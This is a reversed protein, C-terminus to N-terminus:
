TPAEGRDFLKNWSFNVSTTDFYAEPEGQFPDALYRVTAAKGNEVSVLALIFDKGKNLGTLIETRTVTVTPAGAVRGKVEIFRLAGSVPDKSLIDYGPNYHDQEAPEYGLDREIAMVADVAIREIVTTDIATSGPAPPRITALYGAPVVLAGGVVVPQQASIQREQEIEALRRELRDALDEARQRAKGSNLTLPVEVLTVTTFVTGDPRQTSVETYRHRKKGALEQEKLEEARHDWYNIEKMLRDRVATEVLDLRGLTRTRVEALHAPVAQEIAYDMGKAELGSGLWEEALLPQILELEDATIPRYDLYPAYGAL